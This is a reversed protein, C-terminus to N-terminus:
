RVKRQTMGGDYYEGYSEKCGLVWGGFWKGVVLGLVWSVPRAIWGPGGLALSIEASHLFLLLQPVSPKVGQAECDDLYCYLNRFFRESGGLEEELSASTARPSTRLEIEITCPTPCTPDAKFTHRARPPITIPQPSSPTVPITLGELTFIFRSHPHFIKAPPSTNQSPPLSPPLPFSLRFSPLFSPLFSPYSSSSSSPYMYMYM